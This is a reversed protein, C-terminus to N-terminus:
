IESFTEDILRCWEGNNVVEEEDGAVMREQGKYELDQNGQEGKKRREFLRKSEDEAIELLKVSKKIKAEITKWSEGM